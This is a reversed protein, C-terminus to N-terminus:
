PLMLKLVDRLAANGYFDVGRLREAHEKLPPTLARYM